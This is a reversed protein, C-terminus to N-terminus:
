LEGLALWFKDALKGGHFYDRMAPKGGPGNKMPQYFDYNLKAWKLILYFNADDSTQKSKTWMFARYKAFAYCAAKGITKNGMFIQHHPRVMDWNPYFRAGMHMKSKIKREIDPLNLALASLWLLEVQDSSMGWKTNEPHRVFGHAWITSFKNQFFGKAEVKQNSLLYYLTIRGIWAPTDGGDGNHVPLGYKDLCDSFDVMHLDKVM